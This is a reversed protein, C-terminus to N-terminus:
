LSKGHHTLRQLKYKPSAVFDIGDRKSDEVQTLLDRFAALSEPTYSIELPLSLPGSTPSPAGTKSGLVMYYFDVYSRVHGTSLLDM